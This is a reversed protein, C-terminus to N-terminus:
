LLCFFCRWCLGLIIIASQSKKAGEAHFQPLYRNLVDVIPSLGVLELLTQTTLLMSFVGFISVDLKRLILITTLLNIVQAVLKAIYMWKSNTILRKTNNM